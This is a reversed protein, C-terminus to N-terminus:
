FQSTSPINRQFNILGNKFIVIDPDPEDPDVEPDDPVLEFPLLVLTDVPSKFLEL